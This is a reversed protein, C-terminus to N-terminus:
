VGKGIGIIWERQDQSWVAIVIPCSVVAAHVVFTGYKLKGGVADQGGEMGKAAAVSEVGAARKDQGAVAIEVARGVVTAILIAAGNITNGGVAGERVQVREVRK